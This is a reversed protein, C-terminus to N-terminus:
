EPLPSTPASHGVLKRNGSPTEQSLTPGDQNPYIMGERQETKVVGVVPCLRPIPIPHNRKPMVKNPIQREKFKLLVVLVSAAKIPPVMGWTRSSASAILKSLAEKNIMGNAIYVSIFPILLPPYLLSNTAPKQM